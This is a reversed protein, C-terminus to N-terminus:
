PLVGTQACTWAASASLAAATAAQAQYAALIAGRDALYDAVVPGSPEGAAIAESVEGASMGPWTQARRADVAARRATGLREVCMPRLVGPAASEIQAATPAQGPLAWQSLTICGPPSESLAWAEVPNATPHMGILVPSTYEPYCEAKAIGAVAVLLLVM